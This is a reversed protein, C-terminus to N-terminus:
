TKEGLQKLIEKFQNPISAMVTTDRVSEENKDMLDVIVVGKNSELNLIDVTLVWQASLFSLPTVFLYITLIGVLRKM